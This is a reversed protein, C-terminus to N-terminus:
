RLDWIDLVNIGDDVTAFQFGNNVQGIGLGFASGASPDVSVEKVFKAQPTYEVIESPSKPAPNVADGQASILDGNPALVLGLPGHLHVPDNILIAGTGQDTQRVSARAVAFIENDGTSAVYLTDTNRDLALGTPGVVFANPDCRHMYGSAIQTEQEVAVSDGTMALGLRTVTGSLANSVFLTAQNGEDVVTLDWPGNLLSQSQITKVVKGFRDLITLAGQGVGQEQDGNQTCLGSGDSSPLNGVVVFGAKLVGLATSLGLAAGKSFLRQQGTPSISVITTGTGQLNHSNNFNSVVVDGPLLLGNTPFESPVFFVGYPNVDGNAPITSAVITPPPSLHPIVAAGEGNAITVAFLLATVVCWLCFHERM